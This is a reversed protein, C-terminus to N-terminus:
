LTFKWMLISLSMRIVDIVTMGRELDHYITAIPIIAYHMRNKAVRAAIEMEVSYDQANWKLKEYAQRTMAKFGSPVDPIYMGFFILLLFSAMRNGMIKFLPMQHAMAREGFVIQEGANLQEFFLTIETPDHQDDGDIFIVAAANLNQFAFECGTKLAAGKGLNVPHRLTHKTVAQAQHFTQDQSGDDVVIVNQTVRLVKQLVRNIYKQENYAPIIVWTKDQVLHRM